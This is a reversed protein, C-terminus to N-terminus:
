SEKREQEKEVFEQYAAATLLDDLESRDTILLRIMWGEGYPEENIVEPSDTLPGNTEVIKGSLPTYLDATAKVSEVVGFAADRELEEGEEPLELYVMDGLEEAAYATIGIVAEKGEVRVWEHTRGYKLDKPFDM